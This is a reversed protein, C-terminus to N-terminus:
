YFGWKRNPYEDCYGWEGSMGDSGINRIVFRGWAFSGARPNMCPHDSRPQTWIGSASGDPRVSGHLRGSQKPYSGSVHGDPSIRYYLAGCCSSDVSFSQAFAAGPALAVGVALVFVLNRM